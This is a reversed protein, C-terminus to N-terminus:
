SLHGCIKLCSLGFCERHIAVYFAGDIALSCFCVHAHIQHTSLYLIPSQVLLMIKMIYFNFSFHLYHQFFRHLHLQSVSSSDIEDIFRTVM